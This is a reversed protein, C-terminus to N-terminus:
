ISPLIKIELKTEHEGVFQPMEKLDKDISEQSKISGIYGCIFDKDFKCQNPDIYIEEVLASSFTNSGQKAQEVM